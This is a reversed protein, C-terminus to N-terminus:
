VATPTARSLVAALEARSHLELKRYVNRLHFEITRESLFLSAAAERNTAGDAVAHAVRYEMPTLEDTPSRRLGARRHRRAGPRGLRRRRVTRLARGGGRAGAARRRAKPRRRRATAFAMLTRAREYPSPAREQLELSRAFEAEAQEHEGRLSAILGRYRGILALLRVHTEPPCRQEYEAIRAAATDLRGLAILAELEMPPHRFIPDTWGADDYRRGSREFCELAAASDGRELAALGLAHDGVGAM